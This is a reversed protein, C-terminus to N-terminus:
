QGKHLNRRQILTENEMSKLLKEAMAEPTGRFDVCGTATIADVMSSNACTESSQCWISAGYAKLLPAAQAGDEGMGSFVIVLTRAGFHDGVNLMIQNISPSYPGPWPRELLKIQGTPNFCLEQEIPVVLVQNHKLNEGDKAYHLPYNGHRGLVRVLVQAGSSDIHQAYIFGAPVQPPLRDIFAKVAAPGGLSAVLLVVKEVKDDSSAPKLYEPMALHVAKTTSGTSVPKAEPPDQLVPPISKPSGVLNELKRILRRQWYDYESGQRNPAEEDAFLIPAVANELFLDSVQAWRGEDKLMLIWADPEEPLATEQLFRDPERCYRVDYGANAIATKMLHRQLPCDSVIGVSLGAANSM